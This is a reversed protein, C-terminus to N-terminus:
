QFKRTRSFKNITQITHRCLHHAHTQSPSDIFTFRTANRKNTKENVSWNCENLRCCCVVRVRSAICQFSFNSIFSFFIYISLFNILYFKSCWKKLNMRLCWLSTCDLGAGFKVNFITVSVLTRTLFFQVGQARHLHWSDIFKLFLEIWKWQSQRNSNWGHEELASFINIEVIKM